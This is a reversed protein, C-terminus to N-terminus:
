KGALSDDIWRLYRADAEVVEFALIEPVDYPHMKRLLAEIADYQDRRTKFTCTWEVASEIKGEWRYTSAVPGVVQACAVLREDVVAAAAYEADNRTPFTTVVVIYSRLDM